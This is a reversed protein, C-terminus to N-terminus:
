EGSGKMAALGALGLVGIPLSLAASPEPVTVLFEYRMRITAVYSSADNTHLSATIPMLVTDGPILAELNQPSSPLRPYDEQGGSWDWNLGEFRVDFTEPVSSTSGPAAQSMGAGVQQIMSFDTTLPPAVVRVMTVTGGLEPAVFEIDVNFDASVSCASSGAAVVDLEVEIGDNVIEASFTGTRSCPGPQNFAQSFPLSQSPFQGDPANIFVSGPVATIPV